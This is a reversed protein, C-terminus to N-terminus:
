YNNQYSNGEKRILKHCFQLLSLFFDTKLILQVFQNQAIVGILLLMFHQKGDTAYNKQLV